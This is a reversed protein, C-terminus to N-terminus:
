LVGDTRRLRLFTAGEIGVATLVFAAGAIACWSGPGLRAWNFRTLLGAFGVASVAALLAAVLRVLRAVIGNLGLTALLLAAGIPMTYWIPGMIRPIRGGVAGSGVLDALKHGSLAAGVGSTTPALVMAILWLCAAVGLLGRSALALRTGPPKSSSSTKRSLGLWDEFASMSIQRNM